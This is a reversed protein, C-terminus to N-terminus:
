VVNSICSWVKMLQARVLPQQEGFSPSATSFLCVSGARPHGSNGSNVGVPVHIEEAVTKHFVAPGFEEWGLCEQQASTVTEPKEVSSLALLSRTAHYSQLSCTTGSVPYAHLLGPAMIYPNPLLPPVGPPLNPPAKGSLPLSLFLEVIFCVASATGRLEWM